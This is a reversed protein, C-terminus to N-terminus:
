RTARWNELQKAAWDKGGWGFALALAASGGMVLYKAVDLIFAGGTPDLGMRSIGLIVSLVIIIWKVVNAAVDTAGSGTAAMAGTVLRAIFVGAFIILAGFVIQVGMELVVNMANTLTEIGLANLAAIVGLLVIFFQSVRAAISSATMGSDAGKLLGLEAVAGDVGMGPLVRKILDGIFRAVFVFIALIIAAALINPIMGMIDSLLENAPVSIAQIDLVDFATIAGILAIIASAVTATIGSVNVPGSALNFREPMPDAFILISSLAQKVVNAVIMFIGFILLAGIVNDGYGMIPEIVGNLADSIQTAGGIALAQMLGILLVIWYGAQALNQGLTKGGPKKSAANAKKAMGTKDIAAGILWKVILAVVWFAVFVIVAKLINPGFIEVQNMFNNWM